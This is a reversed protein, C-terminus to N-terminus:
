VLGKLQDRRWGGALRGPPQGRLLDLLEQRTALVQPDINLQRARQRAGDRLRKFRSEQIPARQVDVLRLNGATESAAIASVIEDGFRRAFRKPLEPIGSLDAPRSPMTKAIRVLLQDSCLWRRPRNLRQACSERWEVLALAACRTRANLARVGRLRSWLAAPPTLVPTELATRCDEELWYLRNLDNLKGQLVDWLAFLHLVDDLAYQLAGAPLPRRAWNTRTFGKDLRVNLEEAVLDQLGIQPAKGLLAAAIQTDILRSPLRYMLRQMAELDQRASHLLWTRGPALLASFLPKLDMDALCDVCALRDPTAVQILCLRPYYTQERVFETDLAVLPAESIADVLDALSQADDVLRDSDTM